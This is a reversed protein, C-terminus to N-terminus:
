QNMLEALKSKRQAPPVIDLLQKVITNLNKTLSIHCDAAASKKLGSQNAGNAYEETWGNEILEAELDELSVTIFATRSILTKVAVLKNPDIDELIKTLRKEERRIRNKKDSKAM